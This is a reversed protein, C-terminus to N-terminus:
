PTLKFVTGSGTAGGESTTGYLSGGTYLLGARPFNGDGGDTFVHIVSEAKTALNIKFVTGCGYMNACRAGGYYTTGYLYGGEYILSGNPYAGDSGGKFNYVVSKVGASNIKFITGTNGKGGEWTTGYFYGGVYILGSKPLAGDAGNTFRHIVTEAGTSLNIKFITGCGSICSTGGGYGTTGYIYGGEYLPEALPAEGDDGDRFDYFVTETGTKPNIKFITGCGMGSCANSNTYETAGYLFGGQLILGGSPDIGDDHNAIPFKHLTTETGTAANFAIVSGAFGGGSTAYFLGNLYLLRGVLLGGSGSFPLRYLVAEAGTKSNIRFITGPTTGYLNGGVNILAAAPFAGDSGGKFAYL